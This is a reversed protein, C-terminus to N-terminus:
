RDTQVSEFRKTLTEARASASQALLPDPQGKYEGPNHVTVETSDWCGALGASLVAAAATLTANRLTM